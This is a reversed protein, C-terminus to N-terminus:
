RGVKLVVTLSIELGGLAQLNAFDQTTTTQRGSRLVADQEDFAFGYGINILFQRYSSDIKYGGRLFIASDSFIEYEGVVDGDDVELGDLGTTYIYNAGIFPSSGNKIFYLRTGVGARLGSFSFGAGVNLDMIPSFQYHYHAGFGYPAGWGASIGIGHPRIPQEETQEQAISFTCIFSLLILLLTKTKM